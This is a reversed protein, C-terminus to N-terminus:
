RPGLLSPVEGNSSSASGVVFATAEVVFVGQGAVAVTLRLKRVAAVNAPAPRRPDPVGEPSRDARTHGLWLPM